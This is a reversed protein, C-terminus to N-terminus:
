FCRLAHEYTFLHRNILWACKELFAREAGRSAPVDEVEATVVFFRNVPPILRGIQIDQESREM